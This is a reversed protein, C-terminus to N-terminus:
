YINQPNCPLYSEHYQLLYNEALVRTDNTSLHNLLLITDWKNLNKM